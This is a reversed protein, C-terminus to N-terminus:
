DGRLRTTVATALEKLRGPLEDYLRDNGRLLPFAVSVAFIPRVGGTHVPVGVAGVGTLHEEHNVAFGRSRVQDLEAALREHSRITHATEPALRLGAVVEAPEFALLAKGLATAYTPVRGGVQVRVQLPGPGNLADLYVIDAGDLRGVYGTGGVEELLGTLLPRVADQATRAPSYRQGLQHIRFGVRYRRHVPERELLGYGCLTDLIRHTVSKDLGTRASVEMVGLEDVHDDFASLIQAVRAAAQNKAAVTEGDRSVPASM